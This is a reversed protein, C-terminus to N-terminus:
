QNNGRGGKEALVLEAAKDLRDQKRKEMTPDLAKRLASSVEELDSFGGHVAGCGGMLSIAVAMVIVVVLMVLGDSTEKKSNM